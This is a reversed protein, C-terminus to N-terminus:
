EFNIEGDSGADITDESGSSFPSAAGRWPKQGAGRPMGSPLVMQPVDQASQSVLQNYALKAATKTEAMIQKGLSPAIRVALNLYIAEIAFDPVGSDDDLDGNAPTSSLNYAIRVAPWGAIMADMRRLASYQQEPTLDYFYSALGLEEFAQEVLQGKTWSM